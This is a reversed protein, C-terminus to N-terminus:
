DGTHKWFYKVDATPDKKEKQKELETNITGIDVLFSDRDVPEPEPAAQKTKSGSAKSFSSM